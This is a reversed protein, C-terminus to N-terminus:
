SQRRGANVLAQATAEIWEAFLDPLRGSYVCGVAITAVDTRVMAVREAQTTARPQVTWNDAHLRYNLVAKSQVYSGGQGLIRLALAWDAMTGSPTDRWGGVALLSSRRWLSCTSVHNRQWLAAHDPAPFPMLGDLRQTRAAVRGPVGFCRFAAPYAIDHGAMVACLQALYDPPLVDDGDVFLILEAETLGVGVMRAACMGGRQATRATGIGLSAALALSDNDSSDDVYLCEDPQRTQSRVSALCERLHQPDLNYGIVIIAVSEAV